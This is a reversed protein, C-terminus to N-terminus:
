AVDFRLAPQKHRLDLVPAWTTSLIKGRDRDRYTLRGVAYELPRWDSPTVHPNCTVPYPVKLITKTGWVDKLDVSDFKREPLSPFSLVGDVDIVILSLWPVYPVLQTAQPSQVTLERVLERGQVMDGMLTKKEAYGFSPALERYTALGAVDIGFLGSLLDDSFDISPGVIRGTSSHTHRHRVYLWMATQNLIVRRQFGGEALKRGHSGHVSFADRPLTDGRVAVAASMSHFGRAKRHMRLQRHFMVPKYTEDFRPFALIDQPVWFFGFDFTLVASFNGDSWELRVYRLTEAVYDKHWADDDDITALVTGSRSFHKALQNVVDIRQPGQELVVMIGIGATIEELEAKFWGPAISGLFIVWVFDQNTQARMSPATVARFLLLRHRLWREDSVGIGLRTSVLVLPDDNPSKKM